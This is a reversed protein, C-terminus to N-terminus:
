RHWIERTRELMREWTWNVFCSDRSSTIRIYMTVNDIIEVM